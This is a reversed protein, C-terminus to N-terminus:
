KKIQSKKKKLSNQIKEPSEVDFSKLSCNDESEHM